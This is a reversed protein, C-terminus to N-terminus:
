RTAELSRLAEEVTPRIRIASEMQVVQLLPRILSREPVVLCLAQGRRELGRHLGFIMNLGASDLYRVASLDLVVGAAANPIGAWLQQEVDRINTLDPEGSIQAVTAPGAARTTVEVPSRM